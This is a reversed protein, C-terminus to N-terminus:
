ETEDKHRITYALDILAARLSGYDNEGDLQSLIGKHGLVYIARRGIEELFSKVKLKEADPGVWYDEFCESDSTEYQIEFTVGYKEAIPELWSTVDDIDHNRGDTYRCFIMKLREDYEVEHEGNEFNDDIIDVIAKGTDADPMKCSFSVYTDFGM